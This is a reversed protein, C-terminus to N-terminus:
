QAEYCAIITGATSPELTHYDAPIDCHCTVYSLSVM